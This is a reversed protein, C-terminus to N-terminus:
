LMSTKSESLAKLRSDKIVIQGHAFSRGLAHSPWNDIIKKVKKDDIKKFTIKTREETDKIQNMILAQKAQM